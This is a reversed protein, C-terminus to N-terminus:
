TVTPIIINFLCYLFGALSQIKQLFVAAIRLSDFFHFSIFWVHFLVSFVSVFRLVEVTPKSNSNRVQYAAGTKDKRSFQLCLFRPDHFIRYLMLGSLVRSLDGGSSQLHNNVHSGKDSELHERVHTCIHRTTEGNYCANGHALVRGVSRLGKKGEGFCLSM